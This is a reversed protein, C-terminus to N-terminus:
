ARSSARPHYGWDWLAYHLRNNDLQEGSCRLVATHRCDGDDDGPVSLM